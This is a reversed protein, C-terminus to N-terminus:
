DRCTVTLGAAERIFSHRLGPASNVLLMGIDRAARLVPNDNSFLRKSIYTAM